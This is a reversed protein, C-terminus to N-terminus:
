KDWPKKWPKAASEEAPLDPALRHRVGAGPPANEMRKAQAADGSHTSPYASALALERLTNARRLVIAESNTVKKDDM